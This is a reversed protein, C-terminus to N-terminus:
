PILAYINGWRLIYNRRSNVFLFHTTTEAVADVKVTKLQMSTVCQAPPQPSTNPSLNNEGHTSHDELGAEQM